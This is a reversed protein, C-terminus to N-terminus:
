KKSLKSSLFGIYKNLLNGRKLFPIPPSKRTGLKKMEWLLDSNGDDAKLGQKFAEVADKKNGGALYARGLNLYFVPHFFEEGFPVSARLRAIAKKCIDAGEGYKKEVIALLCGYYSLVFPDDPYTELADGLMHLAAKHSKRRLLVKIDELYEAPTKDKGERLNRIAMRHQRQMLGHLMNKFDAEKRLSGYDTKTSTIIEGKLYTSTAIGHNKEGLDETQVIYKDSGIEIATEFETVFRSTINVRRDSPMKGM